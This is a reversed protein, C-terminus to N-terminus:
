KIKIYENDLLKVPEGVGMVWVGKLKSQKYREPTEIVDHISDPTLNEFQKGFATCRTVKVQYGLPKIEDKINIIYMDDNKPEEDSWDWILVANAEIGKEKIYDQVAHKIEDLSNFKKVKKGERLYTAGSKRNLYDAEKQDITRELEIEEEEDPIAGKLLKYISKDTEYLHLKAYYHEADPSYGSWSSLKVIIAKM